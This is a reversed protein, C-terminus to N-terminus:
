AAPSTQVTLGVHRGVAAQREDCTTFIVDDVFAKTALAAAVHLADAAHIVHKQLLKSAEHVHRGTIPVLSVPGSRACHHAFADLVATARRIRRARHAACIASTLEIQLLRSSLVAIASGLLAERWAAHDPEDRLYARVVASTDAYKIM